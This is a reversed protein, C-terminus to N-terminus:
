DQNIAKIPLEITLTGQYTVKSIKSNHAVTYPDQIHITLNIMHLSMYIELKQCEIKSGDDSVVNIYNGGVTELVLHDGAAGTTSEVYFVVNSRLLRVLMRKEDVADITKHQYTWLEYEPYM